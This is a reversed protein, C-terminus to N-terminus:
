ESRINKSPNRHFKFPINCKSGHSIGYDYSMKSKLKLPNIPPPEDVLECDDWFVAELFFPVGCTIYCKFADYQSRKDPM